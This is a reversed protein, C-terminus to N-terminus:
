MKEPASIGMLSLSKALIERTISVLALRSNKLDESEAQLVPVNEYFDTFVKALEYVYNALRHVQYDKTIDEIIEPFQILKLILNRESGLILKQIEIQLKFIKLKIGSNRIISCARAHAYQVYYVPNKKSQEKALDLDFDLHTDAARQLFFFRVADLGVEDILEDMTIYTGTRKSMRAKEGKEMITVFQLLIIKLKNEFGFVAMGAMLGAVDGHHDAGWVDIVRDFKKEEFKYLHNAIDGALYTASKDSKILVRERVDGLDMAKFWAAGDKEYVLNKKKLIDLVKKVRGSEHLKTESIWEDFKIGMKEVSKKIMEEVIIKAAMQGAKFPDKEKIRKNLEDIYKGSYQTESDKLVSHGLILIQNGWDNIYYAKETQFGAMKLVNALTDGFPGGRANGITLPGTPNASIFEVQVKKNNGFDFKDHLAFKIGEELGKESLYFNLFGNAIEIKFIYASKIKEAIEKPDKGLVVAVNSSYDGHIGGFAVSFDTKGVVKEIEKRLIDRIMIDEYYRKVIYFALAIKFESL